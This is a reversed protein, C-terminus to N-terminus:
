LCPSSYTWVMPRFKSLDESTMTVDKDILIAHANVLGFAELPSANGYNFIYIYIHENGLFSSQSVLVICCNVLLNM